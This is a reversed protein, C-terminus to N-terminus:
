YRRTVTIETSVRNSSRAVGDGFYRVYGDLRYTGPYGTLLMSQVADPGGGSEPGFCYPGNPYWLFGYPEGSWTFCSEIVQVDGNAEYTLLAPYRVDAKPDDAVELGTVRLRNPELTGDSGACGALGAVLVPALAAGFFALCTKM